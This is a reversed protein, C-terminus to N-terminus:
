QSGHPHGRDATTRAEAQENSAKINRAAQNLTNALEAAKQRLLANGGHKELQFVAGLEIGEIHAAEKAFRSILESNRGRAQTGDTGVTGVTGRHGILRSSGSKEAPVTEVGGVTGGTGRRPEIPVTPITPVTPVTPVTTRLSYLGPGFRVVLGSEIMRLVLAKTAGTNKGTAAAIDGLRMGDGGWRALADLVARQGETRAVEAADGVITWTGCDPSFELALEREDLDRGTIGLTATRGYRGRRLVLVADASGTLGLTGTVTELPDAEGKPNFKRTHTVAVIGVHHEFGISQLAAIAAVDEAYVDAGRKRPPRVRALTDLVVLRLAPRAALLDNLADFGGADLRPLRTSLLLREPQEEGDGIIALRAKLRRLTDEFGLFLAEGAEVDVSGLACGGQAVAFAAGLALWSKGVKPPGALIVVGEPVLGPLAWRPEPFEMNGLESATVIEVGPAPEARESKAPALREWPLGTM